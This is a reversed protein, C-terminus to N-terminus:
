RSADVFSASLVTALARDYDSDGVVTISSPNIRDRYELVAPSADKRCVLACRDLIADPTRHDRVSFFAEIVERGNHSVIGVTGATASLARYLAIGRGVEAGASLGELEARTVAATVRRAIVPHLELRNIVDVLRGNVEIGVELGLAGLERRLRVYDIELRVLTGDFDFLVLPRAQPQGM